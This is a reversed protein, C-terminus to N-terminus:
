SSSGIYQLILTVGKGIKVNHKPSMLTSGSPDSKLYFTKSELRKPLLLTLDILRCKLCLQSINPPRNLEVHVKCLAPLVITLV